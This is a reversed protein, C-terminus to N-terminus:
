GVKAFRVNRLRFYTSAFLSHNSLCHDYVVDNCNSVPKLSSIVEEDDGSDTVAAQVGASLIFDRPIMRYPM